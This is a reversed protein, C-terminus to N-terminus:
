LFISICCREWSYRTSKEPKSICVHANYFPRRQKTRRASKPAWAINTQWSLARDALVFPTVTSKLHLRTPTPGIKVQDPGSVSISESSSLRDLYPWPASPIDKAIGVSVLRMVLRGISMTARRMQLILRRDPMM